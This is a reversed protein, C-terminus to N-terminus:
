NFWYMENIDQLKQIEQWEKIGHIVKQIQKEWVLM